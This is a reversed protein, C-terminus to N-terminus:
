KVFVSLFDYRHVPEFGLGMALKLSGINEDFCDWNPILGNLICRAIFHSGVVKGIGLGQFEPLTYIDVEAKQNANAASYCISVPNAKKLAVVANGQRIFEEGTSWFREELDLEFIQMQHLENLKPSRVDFGTKTIKTTSSAPYELQTRARIKHNFLNPNDLVSHLVAESPEYIHFYQPLHQQTFLSVIQEENSTDGLIQCFGNKHEVMFGDRLSYGNGGQSEEIVSQIIPFRSSIGGQRIDAPRVM